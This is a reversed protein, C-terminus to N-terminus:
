YPYEGMYNGPPNYNAVVIISGNPCIAKGAGVATTNKWIMQTYHGVVPNTPFKFSQYEYDAKESYWSEAASLTSFAKHNSGWFINEGYNYEKRNLADRHQINCGNKKALFDAWEQAYNALKSDWELAPVNVEKRVQNHHNIFAHIETPTFRSKNKDKASQAYSFHLIIIFATFNTLFSKILM